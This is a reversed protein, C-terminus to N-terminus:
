TMEKRNSEIESPSSRERDTRRYREEDSEEYRPRDRDLRDRDSRDRDSRDGVLRDRDSRDREPRDREPRDRDLRDRDLRDRDSRDRDLRDRDSRDREPRDRDSRDRDSKDRELRDRESRDRELRYREEDREMDRRRHRIEDREEDRRRVIKTDTVIIRPRAADADATGRRPGDDSVPRIGVGTIRPRSPIDLIVNSRPAIEKDREERLMQHRRSWEENDKQPYEPRISYNERYYDEEEILNTGIDVGVLTSASPNSSHGIYNTKMYVEVINKTLMFKLSSSSQTTDTTTLALPSNMWVGELDMKIDERYLKCWCTDNRGNYGLLATAFINKSVHGMAISVHWTFNSFSSGMENYKPASITSKEKNWQESPFVERLVIGEDRLQVKFMIDKGIEPVNIGDPIEQRIYITRSEFGIDFKRNDVERHPLGLRIRAFQDGHEHLKCLPLKAVTHSQSEKYCRLVLRYQSGRQHLPGTIRMGANTISFPESTRPSRDPVYDYSHRFEYPSPALLGCIATEDQVANRYSNEDLKAPEANWCFITQDDSDKIIQEQLRIFAKNGEGYLLPMNVDFIGLLSYAVDEARTTNRRSAWSMKQAISYRKIRTLDGTLADEHIETIECMVRKWQQRDGIFKWNKDYFHLKQPALLEQLTWGRTFWRSARFHKELEDGSLDSPVDSLYAICEGSESYWRFMSNIAESLEASSKKDICCTDIWVYGYGDQLAINCAGLIKAHGAKKDQDDKMMDEFTVEYDAESNWTHSLIAYEKVKKTELKHTRTNVVTMSM